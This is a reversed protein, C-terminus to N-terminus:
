NTNSAHGVWITMDRSVNFVCTVEDLFQINLIWESSLNGADERTKAEKVCLKGRFVQMVPERNGQSWFDDDEKRRRELRSWAHHKRVKIDHLCGIFIRTIKACVFAPSGSRSWTCWRCTANQRIVTLPQTLLLKTTLLPVITARTQCLTIISSLLKMGQTKRSLSQEEFRFSPSCRSRNMLLAVQLNGKM